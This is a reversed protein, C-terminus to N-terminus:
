MWRVKLIEENEQGGKAKMEKLFEPTYSYFKQVYEDWSVKKDESTDM